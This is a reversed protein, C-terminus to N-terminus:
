CSNKAGPLSSAPTQWCACLQISIFDFNESGYEALLYAYTNRGHYFFDQQWPEHPAFTVSRSFEPTSYDLYSQAPAMAVIYDEAKALVSMDGMTRLTEMTFMNSPSEPDDNGEIDWDFGSFGQWGTEPRAVENNNWHKWASWFEAGSFDAAPHPSNWGGISVLHVVSLGEAEIQAVVGAVCDAFETGTAPGTIVPAGMGDTALNISFWILVNMGDRAAEVLGQDCQGWNAYGALIVTPLTAGAGGQTRGSRPMSTTTSVAAAGIAIGVAALTMLM